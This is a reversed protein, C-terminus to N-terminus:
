HASPRTVSAFLELDSWHEGYIRLFSLASPASPTTVWSEEVGIMSKAVMAHLYARRLMSACGCCWKGDFPSQDEGLSLCSAVCLSV